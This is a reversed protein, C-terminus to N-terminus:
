RTRLYTVSSTRFQLIYICVDLCRLRLYVGSWVWHLVKESEYLRPSLAFEMLGPLHLWETLIFHLIPDLYVARNLLDSLSTVINTIMTNNVHWLLELFLILPQQVM